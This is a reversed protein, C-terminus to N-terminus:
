SRVEKVGSLRQAACFVEIMRPHETSNPTFLFTVWQEALGRVRAVVDADAAPVHEGQLVGVVSRLNTHVEANAGRGALITLM